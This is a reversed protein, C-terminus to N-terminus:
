DAVAPEFDTAPFEDSAFTSDPMDDWHVRYFNDNGWLDLRIAVIWGQHGKHGKKGVYKVYEGMTFEQRFQALGNTISRHVVVEGPPIEQKIKETTAM